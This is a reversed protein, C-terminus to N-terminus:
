GKLKPLQKKVNAFAETQYDRLGGKTEVKGAYGGFWKGSYSCCIGVWGVLCPYFEDKNLKISNYQEKNIYEPIWGKLLEQWMKAIYWNVEGAVRNGDVYQM